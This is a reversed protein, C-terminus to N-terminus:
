QEKDPRFGNDLGEPVFDPVADPDLMSLIKGEYRDLLDVLVGKDEDDAPWIVQSQAGSPFQVSFKMFPVPEGQETFESYYEFKYIIIKPQPQETM